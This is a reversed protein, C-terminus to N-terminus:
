EERAIGGSEYDGNKMRERNWYQSKCKPCVDPLGNWSRPTWRHGCRSCRYRTLFDGCVPCVGEFNEKRMMFNKHCNDCYMVLRPERRM